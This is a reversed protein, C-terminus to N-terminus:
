FSYLHDYERTQILNCFEPINRLRTDLPLQVSVNHLAQSFSDVIPQDEKRKGVSEKEASFFKVLRDTITAEWQQAM